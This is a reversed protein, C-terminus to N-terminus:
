SLILIFLKNAEKINIQLELTSLIQVPWPLHNLFPAFIGYDIVQTIELAHNDFDVILGIDLISHFSVLSNYDKIVTEDGIKFLHSVILVTILFDNFHM